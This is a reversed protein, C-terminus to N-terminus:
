EFLDPFAEDPSLKEDWGKPQDALAERWIGLRRKPHESVPVLKVAARGGRAVFVEEGAEAKRVLESLRSKAEHMNVTTM